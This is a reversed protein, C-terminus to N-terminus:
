TSRGLDAMTTVGRDVLKRRQSRTIGAVLSLHDDDHRRDGCGQKWDCLACHDVPEPYTDPPEAAHAEFRQRVARYYASYKVVRFSAEQPGDSGGLALHM